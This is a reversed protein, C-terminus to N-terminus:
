DVSALLWRHHCEKCSTLESGNGYGAYTHTNANYAPSYVYKAPQDTGVFLLIGLVGFTIAYNAVLTKTTPKFDM